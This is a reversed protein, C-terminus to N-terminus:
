QYSQGNSKALYVWSGHEMWHKALGDLGLGVIGIGLGVGMLGTIAEIADATLGAYTTWRAIRQTIPFRRFAKVSRKIEKRLSQVTGADGRLVSDLFPMLFDRFEAIEIRNRLVLAEHMSAPVPFELEEGILEEVVLGWVNGVVGTIAPERGESVPAAGAIRAGNKLATANTLRLSQLEMIIPLEIEHIKRPEIRLMSKAVQRLPPPVATLIVPVARDEGLRLARLLRFLSWHVPKGRADLQALILPAFADIEDRELSWLENLNTLGDWKHLEITAVDQPYEAILDVVGITQLGSLKMHSLGREKAVSGVETWVMSVHSALVALQLAESILEATGCKAVAMSEAVASPPVCEILGEQLSRAVIASRYPELLHVRFTSTDPEM